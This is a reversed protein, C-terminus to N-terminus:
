VAKLINCAVNRSEQFSSGIVRGPTETRRRPDSTANVFDKDSWLLSM